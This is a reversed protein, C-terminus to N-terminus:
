ADALASGSSTTEKNVHLEQPTSCKRKRNAHNYVCSANDSLSAAWRGYGGLGYVHCAGGALLYLDEFVSSFASAPHENWYAAASSSNHGSPVNLFDLGRDLHLPHNSTGNSESSNDNREGGDGLRSSVKDFYQQAYDVALKTSALSDTSIFVASALTSANNGQMQQNNNNQSMMMSQNYAMEYACHVADHIMDVHASKNRAYLTRIHLSVYDQPPQQQQSLTANIPLPPKRLLEHQLINNRVARSPRFTAQWISRYVQLFMLEGSANAHGDYYSMGYDHSQHRVDVFIKRSLSHNADLLQLVQNTNQLTSKTYPVHMWQPVTWNILHPQLYHELAHPRTWQILLLRKSQHAVLLAFPLLQLRDSAGGCKPDFERLCRLILYKTSSNDNNAPTLSSKTANHWKIYRKLWNPINRSDRWSFPTSSDLSPGHYNYYYRNNSYISGNRIETTANITVNSNRDTRSAPEDSTTVRRRKGHHSLTSERLLHSQLVHLNRETGANLQVAFFTATTALGFSLLLSTWTFRRTSASRPSVSLSRRTRSSFRNSDMSPEFLEMSSLCVNTM